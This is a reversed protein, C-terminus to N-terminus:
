PGNVVVDPRAEAFERVAQRSVNTVSLDLSKLNPLEMLYPLVADTVATGTLDLQELSKLDAANQIGEDTVKAGNLFLLKLNKCNKLHALGEGSVNAEELTLFELQSLKSLHALGNDTIQNPLHLETIWTAEELHALGEDTVDTIKLEVKTIDKPLNGIAHGLDDNRFGPGASFTSTEAIISGRLPERFEPNGGLNEGIDPDNPPPEVPLSHNQGTSNNCGALLVIVLFGNAIKGFMCKM